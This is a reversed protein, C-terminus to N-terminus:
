ENNKLEKLNIKELFNILLLINKYDVTSLHVGEDLHDGFKKIKERLKEVSNNLEIYNEEFYNKNTSFKEGNLNEFFITGTIENFFTKVYIEESNKRVYYNVM